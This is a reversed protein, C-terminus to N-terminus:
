GVIILLQLFSSTFRAPSSNASPLLAGATLHASPSRRDAGCSRAAAPRARNEQRAARRRGLASLRAIIAGSAPSDTLRCRASEPNRAAAKIGTEALVCTTPRLRSDLFPHQLATATAIDHYRGHLCHDHSLHHNAVEVVIHLQLQLLTRSLVTPASLLFHAFNQALGNPALWL